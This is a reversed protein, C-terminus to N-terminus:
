SKGFLAIPQVPRPLTELAWAAWECAVAPSVDAPASGRREPGTAGGLRRAELAAMAGDLTPQRQHRMRGAALLDLFGGHAVALDSASPKTVTIRAAELAHIATAGPSHPDVVVGLVDRQDRLESVAAVLGAADGRYDLYRDLSVLVLDGDLYGASAISCHDRGHNIEVALAVEAVAGAVRDREQRREQRREAGKRGGAARNCSAHELGNYGPGDDRHGLDFKAVDPGLPKGCRRCLDAPGSAALM